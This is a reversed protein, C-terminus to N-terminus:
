FGGFFQGVFVSFHFPTPRGEQNAPLISSSRAHTFTSGNEFPKKKRDILITNFKSNV